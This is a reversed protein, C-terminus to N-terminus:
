LRQGILYNTRQRSKEMLGLDYDGILLNTRLLKNKLKPAMLTFGGDRIFFSDELVPGLEKQFKQSHWLDSLVFHAGSPLLGVMGAIDGLWSSKEKQDIENDFNQFIAIDLNKIITEHGASTKRDLLDLDQLNTHFNLDKQSFISQGVRLLSERVDRWGTHNLDFLYFEISQSGFNQHLLYQLVGIVEPCPGCCFIGVKKLERNLEGVKLLTEYTQRIYTPVYALLYADAVKNSYDVRVYKTGESYMERMRALVPKLEQLERVVDRDKSIGRSLKFAELAFDYEDV